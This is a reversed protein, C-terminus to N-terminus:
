VEHSADSFATQNLGAYGDTLNPSNRDTESEASETTSHDARHDFDAVGRNNMKGFEFKSEAMETEQIGVSLKGDTSANAVSEASWEQYTNPKKWNQYRAYVFRGIFISAVIVVTWIPAVVFLYIM